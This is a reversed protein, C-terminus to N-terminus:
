VTAASPVLHLYGAPPLVSSASALRGSNNLIATHRSGLLIRTTLDICQIRVNRGIAIQGSMLTSSVEMFNRGNEKGAYNSCLCIASTHSIQDSDSAVAVVFKPSNVSKAVPICARIHLPSFGICNPSNIIRLTAEVGSRELNAVRLLFDKKLLHHRKMKFDPLLYTSDEDYRRLMTLMTLMQSCLPKRIPLM